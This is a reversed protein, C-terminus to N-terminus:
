VLIPLEALSLGTVTRINALMANTQTYTGPTEMIAITLTRHQKEVNTYAREKYYAIHIMNYTGTRSGYVPADFNVPFEFERQGSYKPSKTHYEFNTIHKGTGKGPTGDEVITSELLNYITPLATSLAVGNSKIAVQVDFEIPRGVNKAPNNAQIKGEIEIGLEPVTVKTFTFLNADGSRNANKQMTDLIGDVIDSETGTFNIDTVFSGYIFTFNETSLTGGDNYLRVFVEYTADQIINGAFKNVLIKRAIEPSYKVAKVYNISKPNIEDSFEVNLNKSADGSTKQLIYFDKGQVLAGGDRAVIKIEKDVANDVFDKVTAETSNVEGIM